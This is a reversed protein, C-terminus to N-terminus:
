SVNSEVGVRQGVYEPVFEAKIGQEDISAKFFRSGAAEFPKSLAERDAAEIGVAYM